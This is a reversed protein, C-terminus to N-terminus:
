HGAALETIQRLQRTLAAFAATYTEEWTQLSKDDGTELEYRLGPLLWAEYGSDPDECVYLSRAWASHQLGESRTLNRELTLLQENIQGKIDESLATAADEALATEMAYAAGALEQIAARLPSADLKRGLEQARQVLTGLHRSLDAGYRSVDLPLLDADALRTAIIGNWVAVAPGFKFETDGFREYWAMDDYNTHYLPMPNSMFVQAAPIGLHSYFGVHDSGGGLDGMRPEGGTKSQEQWVELLSKKTGPYATDAAAELLLKKLSPASEAAVNPGTVAMDANLYAIASTALKSEFQEVWETSGIIGYEEADWHAIALSRRPRWGETLMQGLADALVLLMANGSNPDSAGFNWADYHCGLYLTQEPFESGQIVGVVNTARKIGLPQDVRVRVQLLEDGQLRYAFPLGGQWGEPVGQGTMRKLIEQASGYPLPAVPINLLGDVDAPDLREVLEDSDLPLAPGNPTLPDGSYGLTLLSGRQVCSDNIAPGEPYPLAKVYGSDAPDSYIILGLAGREQAYKAKYGRFNGGFRAIVIKGAVSIGLADLQEYDEKRAYNAYVVTGTVDGSGSYANWGPGLDAHASYPDEALIDEQNNLAMRKPQVLDVRVSCDPSPMLVDYPYETVQLGAAKMSTTLYERVRDNAPTGAPHPEQALAQLHKKFGAATCLECLRAEFQYQAQSRTTSFGRIAKTDTM